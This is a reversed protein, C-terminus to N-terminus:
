GISIHTVDDILGRSSVDPGPVRPNMRWLTFQLNRALPAGLADGPRPQSTESIVYDAKRGQPPHPFLGGMPNLASRRHDVLMYAAWLQWGSPRVDIRVSAGRPLEHDWARIQLVWPNVQPYTVDIERAASLPVIVLAAACGALGLAASRLRPVAALAALEVLALLLVYPGLFALDKFYFLQGDPRLRFYLGILATVAVMAAVPRRVDAPLRILGRWALLAVAGAGLYDVLNSGPMGLFYPLPLYPLQGGAWGALSTWPALVALASGTKELFGRGLVLAVPVAAAIAPVWVWRPLTPLALASIWGPRRGAARRKRWLEVARVVLFLAPFPLLLPYALLGLLTFSAFLVAGRRDPSTLYRWGSLLMLPLAFQGWLENYFPHITVYVVIRDLPLLFVALLALWPPARLLYRAFLFLGLASLALMVASLTAFARIPDVGALTSVAALAYYIPYKSRWELPVHNIPLDPRTATPPAHELLVASGVVLIADGNQGPVTPFGARFSPLLSILGVIAALMLPLAIRILSSREGAAIATPPVTRRLSLGAGLTAVAIVIALSVKLPVHLIGLGALALSSLAAGLPLVLLARHAGLEGRVLARAPAYGCLGFLVVAVGGVRLIAPLAALGVVGAGLALALGVLGGAAVAAVTLLRPDGRELAVPPGGAAARARPAPADDITADPALGGAPLSM